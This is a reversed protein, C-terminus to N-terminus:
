GLAFWLYPDPNAGKNVTFGDEDISTLRGNTTIGLNQDQLYLSTSGIKVKTTSYREDYMSLTINNLFFLVQKPKFGCVPKIQATTSLNGSGFAYKRLPSMETEGIAFYVITHDSTNMTFGNNTIEYITNMGSGGFSYDQSYTTTFVARYKDTKYRVDYISLRAPNSLNTGQWICLMIPRFGLDVSTQETTSLTVQGIKFKNRIIASTDTYAM